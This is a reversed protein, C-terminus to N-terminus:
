TCIHGKERQEEQSQLYGLWRLNILSQQKDQSTNSMLLTARHKHATPQQNLCPQAPGVRGKALCLSAAQAPHVGEAPRTQHIFVLQM